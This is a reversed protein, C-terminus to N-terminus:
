PIRGTQYMDPHVRMDAHLNKYKAKLIGGLVAYKQFFVFLIYFFRMLGIYFTM